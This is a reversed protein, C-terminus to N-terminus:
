HIIRESMTQLNLTITAEKMVENFKSCPCRQLLKENPEPWIVKRAPRVPEKKTHPAWSAWECAARGDHSDNVSIAAAREREDCYKTTITEGPALWFGNLNFLLLSLFSSPAFFHKIIKNEMLIHKPIILAASVKWNGDRRHFPKVESSPSISILLTFLPFEKVGRGVVIRMEIKWLKSAACSTIAILWSLASCSAHLDNDISSSTRSSPPPPSKCRFDENCERM